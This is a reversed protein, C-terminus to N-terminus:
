APTIPDSQIYELERKSCRPHEEPSRYIWLWGFLWIVGIGGLFIFTWRWGFHLTIWPVVLPTIIAGVNTGANFIGVALAREKKPFWEAVAKLSGPFVGAEGFGLVARAIIFAWLSSVMGHAMAALSWTVMAIAYGIRTGVKDVVRGLVVMGVAYATTVGVVLDGYDIESWGLDHQLTSKLVGIVLRDMYNKTIGLLLVTCIVWRFRGVQEAIQAATGRNSGSLNPIVSSM